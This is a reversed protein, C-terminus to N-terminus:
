ENKEDLCGAISDKEEEMKLQKSIKYKQVHVMNYWVACAYDYRYLFEENKKKKSVNKSLNLARM